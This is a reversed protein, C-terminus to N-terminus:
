LVGQGNWLSSPSRHKLPGDLAKVKLVPMTLGSFIPMLVGSLYVKWRSVVQEGRRM